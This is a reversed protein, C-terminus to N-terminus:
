GQQAGLVVCVRFLKEEVEIELQWGNAGAITQCIALGLGNGGTESTRSQDPRYFPDFLRAAESKLVPAQEPHIENWVQVRRASSSITVGIEGGRWAYKAANEVLNGLLIEVHSPPAEVELAELNDVVILERAEIRKQARQLAIDCM